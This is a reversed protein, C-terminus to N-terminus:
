WYRAHTLLSGASKLNPLKQSPFNEGLFKMFNRSHKLISLVGTNNRGGAYHPCMNLSVTMCNVLKTKNDAFSMASEENSCSDMFM